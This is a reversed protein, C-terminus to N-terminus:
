GPEGHESVVGHNVRHSALSCLASRSQRGPATDVTLGHVTLGTLEAPLVSECARTGLDGLHDGSGSARSGGPDCQARRVEKIWSQPSCAVKALLRDNLGFKVPALM